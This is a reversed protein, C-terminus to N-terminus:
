RRSRCGKRIRWPPGIMFEMECFSEAPPAANSNAYLSIQPPRVAVAAVAQAFPAQAHAILPTHFAASVPLPTAAVGREALMRAAAAVAPRPGALVVQEIRFVLAARGTM